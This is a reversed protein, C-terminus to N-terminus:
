DSKFAENILESEIKEEKYSLIKEKAIQESYFEMIIPIAFPSIRKLKNHLINNKNKFIFKKIKDFGIM